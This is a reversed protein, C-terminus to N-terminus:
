SKKTKKSKPQEELIANMEQMKNFALEYVGDYFEKLKDLRTLEILGNLFKKAEVEPVDIQRQVLNFSIFILPKVDHYKNSTKAMGTIDNGLLVPTDLVFPLNWDNIGAVSAWEPSKLMAEDWIGSISNATINAKECQEVTWKVQRYHLKQGNWLVYGLAVTGQADPEHPKEMLTVECDNFNIAKSRQNGAIIQDSNLDHTIGSLDGLEEINVKLQELLEKTIKRPNKSFEKAMITKILKQSQATKKVNQYRVIGGSTLGRILKANAEEPFNVDL